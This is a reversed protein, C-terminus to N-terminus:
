DNRDSLAWRRDGNAPLARLPSLTPNPSVGAHQSRAPKPWASNGKMPASLSAPIRPESAMFNWGGVGKESLQAIHFIRLEMLGVGTGTNGRLPILSWLFQPPKEPRTFSLDQSPDLTHACNWSALIQGTESGYSLGLDQRRWSTGRSKVM